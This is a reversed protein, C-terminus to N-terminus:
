SGSGGAEAAHVFTAASLLAGQSIGRRYGARFAARGVPNNAEPHDDRYEGWAEDLPAPEYSDPIIRPVNRRRM